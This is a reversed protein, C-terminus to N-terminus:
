RAAGFYRDLFDLVEKVFANQPFPGHGTEFVVHKRDADPTGWGRFMPLQANEIPEIADHRGNIMLVPVNVHSLYNIQDVEPFTHAAALGGLIVINLRVRTDVAPIIAAMRGGWSFGYYALKKADIDPRTELYDITRKFDQVQKIVYDKHRHTLSPWTSQLGDNREFTGKYVPYVVVRGSQALFEPWSASASQKENISNSGPFYVATQYPPQGAKPLYVHARVREGGYAASFSVTERRWDAADSTSETTVDLPRPDYSFLNLHARHVADPVPSEKTFDRFSLPKPALAEPSVGSPYVACRFGNGASRDLPPRTGAFSFLYSPDNWAGGLIHRERGGNTNWLWERVNGAVDYLGSASMGQYRGVAAMSKTGFNSQLVVPAMWTSAANVWHVVTPLAKGNADAYAAAEYWSVGSVPYDDQGAPYRGLEWTSPGPRGTADVFLRMAEEWGIAKGDREFAVKWYARNRYGGSEIFQLFQRNTVEYRDIYYPTLPTAEIPDMGAIWALARGAPIAVMGAPTVGDKTLAISLRGPAAAREVTTFGALEIRWRKLGRPLGVSKVPAPGLDRWAGNAANYDKVFVRAGAPEVEISAEVEVRSRLALVQADDPSIQMARALIAAAGEYAEQDALRGIEPIAEARVWARDTTRKWLWAGGSALVVAVIAAAIMMARSGRRRVAPTSVPVSELLAAHMAGAHPYRATPDKALAKRVIAKVAGPVDGRADLESGVPNNVIAHVVSAVMDGKFPPVGTLMEFATAGLAWVDSAPSAPEGRVQEPAMYAVTGAFSGAGTLRTAQDLKALGFDIIKATGDHAVLINAPKIDCHLIGTAHAAGLGNAVQRLLAVAADVPMPGRSLTAALSEGDYFAMAIFDGEATHHIGHVTAINPHDLASAARAERLFRDRSLRSDPLDSAGAASTLFKLAVDRDLELDHAKYVAGMGGRGILKDVRYHAITTGVLSSLDTRPM